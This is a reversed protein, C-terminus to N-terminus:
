EELLLESQYPLVKGRSRNGLENDYRIDLPLEGMLEGLARAVAQKESASGNRIPRIILECSRDALQRFSHQVFPFRRLIRSLDVPNVISNDAARFLVPVRGELDLLNPMPDGCPCPTHDMRGWDGTRYKLLPIFPNRGGTVTIEGVQRDSVPFGEADLVEIFVDHPLQHYGHGLPCAYALPGTETLSYWDIVPAHYHEQLHQKLGNSMAVATTILTRPQAPIQQRLMESFSIPDGTLMAPNLQSFFQQADDAKRWENPHINLKAFGAQQWASLVTAYTVTNVQAGVLFNAVQGASFDSQLGYQQLALEIMPLYSTVAQVHHPVQLAHGTTGATRYVLMQELDADDPILYELRTAIDERSMTPINQWHHEAKFGDPLRLRFDAVKDRKAHLWALIHDPPVDTPCRERGAHLAERYRNLHSLDEAQMRDGAVTRWIPAHPHQQMERWLQYGRATILPSKELLDAPIQSM